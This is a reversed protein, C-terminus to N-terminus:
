INGRGHLDQLSLSWVGGKHLMEQVWSGFSTRKSFLIHLSPFLVHCAIFFIGRGLLFFYFAVARCIFLLMFVVVDLFGLAMSEQSIEVQSIMAIHVRTSYLRFFSSNYAFFSILARTLFAM